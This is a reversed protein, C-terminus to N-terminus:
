AALRRNLEESLEDATYGALDPRPADNLIIGRRMRYGGRRMCRIFGKTELAEVLKFTYSKSHFGMADTIEDFSPSRECSKLYSFVREQPESLLSM